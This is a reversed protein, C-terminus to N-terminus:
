HWLVLHESIPGLALAPFFTLAGVILVVLVLVITFTFNDTRLTGISENVAKKSALLSSIALLVIISVYRGFFMVIGTTMNWFMTNDGLGEFGSGNNAASSSFEYLVQSLGHFGPNSIGELGAPVAVSLGSFMLILLPHLIILLAILKMEKGEIKKTLFEPTRGVMLGCLFVAIIAYMLMNMLGVGKGGFVVNLMMNLLPVLGGLPTLTDHMNNVTGTTFSTTVATFLSSQAIGFRVEKGEMSGMSQNLGLQSLIPNGASEAKFCVVLGILFIISMAGFVVWGQKKNKIMHGFAVVCAGPLIMMSLIEVINSIITPNEFPHSSNSGFFGGGNTGLHKISELAAVPGRAIDQLKGEITTVTETGAFTQPVGQTALIIGIILAGPLLVRTTIRILDVYFNGLTKKKGVLGRVFAMAASYGTAASTFMMYIIVTMQSFYSLGSEGSYHQLNTNTMFSIITNFSLGQEMSKIGSPNFIHMSQTRLIIYGIFVMVANTFLLALAYQKWNMEKKKDISCVKYIFNDVKDFLRDGFTKQNTAIHYLYKGMPIVLIMFIALVIVIQVMFM